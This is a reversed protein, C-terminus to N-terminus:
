AVRSKPMPKQSPREIEAPWELDAPWNDSFWRVIKEARRVMCSSGGELSTFFKGDGAAYTSVTALTLSKHAAYSKALRILNEIIM